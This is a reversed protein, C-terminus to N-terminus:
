SNNKNQTDLRLFFHEQQTTNYPPTFSPLPSFIFNIKLNQYYKATDLNKYKKATDINQYTDMIEFVTSKIM